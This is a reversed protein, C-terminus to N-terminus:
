PGLLLTGIPFLLIISFTLIFNGTIGFISLRNRKKRGIEGLFIGVPNVVMTYAYLPIGKDFGYNLSPITLFLVWLTIGVVIFIVSSISWIGWNSEHHKEIM